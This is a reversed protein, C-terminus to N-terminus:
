MYTPYFDNIVENAGEMPKEQDGGPASKTAPDNITMTANKEPDEPNSIIPEPEKQKTTEIIEEDDSVVVRQKRGRRNGGRARTGRSGRPRGRAREM